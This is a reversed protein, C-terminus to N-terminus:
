QEVDDGFPQAGFAAVSHEGRDVALVGQSDKFVVLDIQKDAIDAHRAQVTDAQYAADGLAIKAKRGDDEDAAESIDIPAFHVCKANFGEEILWEAAFLQEVGHARRDGVTVGQPLGWHRSRGALGEFEIVADEGAAVGGTLEAEAASAEAGAARLRQAEALDSEMAVDVFVGDREGALAEDAPVRSRLLRDADFEGEELIGAAVPDGVGDGPAGRSGVNGVKLRSKGSPWRLDSVCGRRGM